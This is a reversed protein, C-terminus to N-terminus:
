DDLSGTQIDGHTEYSTAAKLKRWALFIMVGLFAVLLANFIAAGTLALLDTGETTYVQEVNLTFRWIDNVGGSGGYIFLHSGIVGSVHSYRPSPANIITELQQWNNTSFDFSWIDNLSVAGASNGGFVLMRNGLVDASHGWRGSPAPGGANIKTWSNSPSDYKWLDNYYICNDDPATCSVWPGKAPNHYFGGFVWLAGGGGVASHGNRAPPASNTPTVPTWYPAIGFGGLYLSTTDFSWLDNFYQVASGTYNWGGFVYIRGSVHTATHASRQPVSGNHFIPTWTSTPDNPHFVYIDNFFGTDNNAPNQGGFLFLMGGVSDMDSYVFNTPLRGQSGLHIWQNIEPVFKDTSYYLFGGSKQDGGIVYLSNGIVAASAGVRSGPDSAPVVLQTWAGDEDHAFACAALLLLL